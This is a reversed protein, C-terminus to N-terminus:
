IPDKLTGPFHGSARPPYTQSQPSQSFRNRSNHSPPTSYMKFPIRWGATGLSIQWVACVIGHIGCEGEAGVLREAATRCAWTAIATGLRRQAMGEVLASPRFLDPAAGDVILVEQALRKHWQALPVPLTSALTPLLAPVTISGAHSFPWLYLLSWSHFSM